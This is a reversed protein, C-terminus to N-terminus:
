GSLVIFTCYWTPGCWSFPRRGSGLGVESEGNRASKWFNWAEVEGFNGRAYAVALLTTRRSSSSPRRERVLQEVRPMGPEARGEMELTAHAKASPPVNPRSIGASGRNESKEAVHTFDLTQKTASSPCSHKIKCTHPPISSPPHSLKPVRHASTLSQLSHTLTAKHLHTTPIKRPLRTFRCSSALSPKLSHPGCGRHSQL